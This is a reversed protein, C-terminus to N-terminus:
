WAAVIDTATTGTAWVRTVNIPHWGVPAAKLIVTGGGSATVKLDGTVGVYLVCGTTGKRYIVYSEGSAMIDSSISLTTASDIATVTATTGDTTNYIIDGVGIMHTTLFLAASDVLKDATTGTTVSSITESALNPVDISDSTIVALADQAQLKLSAM